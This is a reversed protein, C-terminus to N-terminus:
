REISLCFLYDSLRNLYIGMVDYAAYQEKSIEQRETMTKHLRVFRRECTRVKARVLHIAADAQNKGPMVFDFRRGETAQTIHQEMRDVRELFKKSLQEYHIIMDQGRTKTGLSAVMTMMDMLEHQLTEYPEQEGVAVKCYGLWANLEDLEGNLEIREDDKDARGGGFLDTKGKDGGKTTIKM